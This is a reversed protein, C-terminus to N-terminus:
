NKRKLQSLLAPMIVLMCIFTTQSGGAKTNPIRKETNNSYVYYVYHIFNIFPHIYICKYAQGLPLRAVSLANTFTAAEFPEKIIILFRM